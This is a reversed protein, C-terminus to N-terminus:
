LVEGVGLRMVHMNYFYIYSEYFIEYDKLYEKFGIFYTM